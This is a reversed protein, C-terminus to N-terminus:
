RNRSTYQLWVLFADKFEDFDSFKRSSRDNVVDQMNTYFNASLTSWYTDNRLKISQRKLQSVVDNWVKAVAKVKKLESTSFGDVDSDNDDNSSSGGVNFQVYDENGDKDEVYVRYTLNKKFRLINKFEVSGRDSSSMTYGNRIYNYYKSDYSDNTEYYSSSTTTRWTSGDKYKITFEIDGRYSSDTEVTLNVWQSTSPSSRNSSISIDDSTSSSSTDVNFSVYDENGDDDEVYLRYYGSRNFKIASSFTVSGKDSSTFKYGDSIEDDATFYSSSTVTSWSSSSSSRYQV